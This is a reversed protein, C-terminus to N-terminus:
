GGYKWTEVEGEAWQILRDLRSVIWTDRYNETQQKIRETDPGFNANEFTAADRADKLTGLVGHPLRNKKPTSM